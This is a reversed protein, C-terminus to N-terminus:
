IRRDAAVICVLRAFGDVGFAAVFARALPDRGGQRFDHSSQAADLNQDEIRQKRVQLLENLAGLRFFRVVHIDGLQGQRKTSTLRADLTEYQALMRRLWGGGM